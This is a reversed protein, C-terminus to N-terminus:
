FVVLAHRRKATESKKKVSKERKYVKEREKVFIKYKTIILYSQIPCDRPIAGFPIVTLFTRAEFPLIVSLM